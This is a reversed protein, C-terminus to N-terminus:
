LARGGLAHVTRKMNPVHAPAKHPLRVRCAAKHLAAQSRLRLVLASGPVGQRRRVQYIRCRLERQATIEASACFAGIAPLLKGGSRAAMLSGAPVTVSSFQRLLISFSGDGDAAGAAEARPWSVCPVRLAAPRSCASAVCGTRARECGHSLKSRASRAHHVVRGSRTRRGGLRPLVAPKLRSM